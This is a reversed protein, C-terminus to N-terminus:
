FVHWQITVNRLRCANFFIPRILVVYKQQREPFMKHAHMTRIDSYYDIYKLIIIMLACVFCSTDVWIRNVFSPAHINYVHSYKRLVPYLTYTHTPTHPHTPTKTNIEAQKPAKFHYRRFVYNADICRAIIINDYKNQTSERRFVALYSSLSASRVRIYEYVYVCVWVVIYVCVSVRM